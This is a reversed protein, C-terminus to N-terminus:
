RPIPGTDAPDYPQDALTILITGAEPGDFTHGVGAGCHILCPARLDEVIAREGDREFTAKRFGGAALVFLETTIQHLHAGLRMESRAHESLAIPNVRAVPFAAALEAESIARRSTRASAPHSTRRGNRDEEFGATQSPPSGAGHSCLSMSGIVDLSTM